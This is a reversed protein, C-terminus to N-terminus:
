GLWTVGSRVLDYCRSREKDLSCDRRPAGVTGMRELRWHEGVMVGEVTGDVDRLIAIAEQRELSFFDMERQEM